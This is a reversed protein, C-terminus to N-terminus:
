AVGSVQLHIEVNKEIQAQLYSMRRLRGLCSEIELPCCDDECRDITEVDDRPACRQRSRHSRGATM